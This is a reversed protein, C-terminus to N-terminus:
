FKDIDCLGFSYAFDCWGLFAFCTMLIQDSDSRGLASTTFDDRIRCFAVHLAYVTWFEV